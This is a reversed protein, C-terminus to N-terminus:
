WEWPFQVSRLAESRTWLTGDPANGPTRWRNALTGVPKIRHAGAPLPRAAPWVTFQEGTETVAHVLGHAPTQWICEDPYWPGLWDFDDETYGWTRWLPPPNIRGNPHHWRQGPASLRDRALLQVIRRADPLRTQPIPQMSLVKLPGRFRVSLTPFDPDHEPALPRPDVECVITGKSLVSFALAVDRDTSAHTYREVDNDPDARQCARILPDTVSHRPQIETVRSPDLCLGLGHWYRINDHATM